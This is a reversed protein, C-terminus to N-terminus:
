DKRGISRAVVGHPRTAELGLQRVVGSREVGGDIEILPQEGVVDCAGFRVRPHQRRLADQGGGVGVGDAATEISHERLPLGARQYEIRREFVHVHVDLLPQGLDDAFRARSQVRRAAAVVLHGGVESQIRAVMRLFDDAFNGPQLAREDGLCACVDVRKTRAVGMKLARLRDAEGVM